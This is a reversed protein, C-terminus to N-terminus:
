EKPNFLFIYLLVVPFSFIFSFLIKLLIEGTYVFTFVDACFYIGLYLFLMVASYLMFWNAGFHFKVPSVNVPYGGRPEILKLLYPRAFAIFVSASAHVGLSTYFFDLTLGTAFGIVVLLSHPIRLPLLMLIIPYIIISIYNFNEWGFNIRKLILAQFLLIIVFRVINKWLVDSM